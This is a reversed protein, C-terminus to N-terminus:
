LEENPVVPKNRRLRSLLADHAGPDEGGEERRRGPPDDEGEQHPIKMKLCQYNM